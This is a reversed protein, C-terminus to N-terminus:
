GTGTAAKMGRETLGHRRGSATRSIRAGTAWMPRVMLTCISGMDKLRIMLGIEWMFMEMQMFSGERGMPRILSGTGKMDRDMQGYKYVKGADNDLREIMNEKTSREM